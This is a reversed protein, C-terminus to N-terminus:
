SLKAEVVTPEGAKAKVSQRTVVDKGRKFTITSAPRSRPSSRPRRYAVGMTSRLHGELEPDAGLEAGIRETTKKLIDCPLATDRGQAVQPGVGDLMSSLSKSVQQASKKEREARFHPSDIVVLGAARRTGRAPPGTGRGERRRGHQEGREDTM